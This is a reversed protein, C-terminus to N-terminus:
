ASIVGDQMYVTRDCEKSLAPNHTVIIITIKEEKNLQRFTNMIKNSSKTDLAGTPEDALILSPSGALARAIAVRQQQGGSLETPKHNKYKTMGLKELMKGAIKKREKEEIGRYVLPLGVNELANLRPLLHFLQFVFGIEKNRINSLKKDDLGSIQKGRLSYKGSDATDLLGIINMLTSKGCGSAGMVALLEGQKVFLTIGKLIETRVTGIKYSKHINQLEIV